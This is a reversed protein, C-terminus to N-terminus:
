FKVGTVLNEKKLADFNKLDWIAKGIKNLHEMFEEGAQEMGPVATIRQALTEGRSFLATINENPVDEGKQLQGTTERLQNLIEIIEDKIASLAALNTEQLRNEVM